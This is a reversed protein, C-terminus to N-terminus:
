RAGGEVLEYDELIEMLTAKRIRFKQKRGVRTGTFNVVTGSETEWKMYQIMCYHGDGYHAVEIFKNRNRTNRYTNRKM